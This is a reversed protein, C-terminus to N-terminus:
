LGYLRGGSVYLIESDGEHRTANNLLFTTMLIKKDFMLLFSYILQSQM